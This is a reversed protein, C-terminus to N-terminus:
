QEKQLRIYGNLCAEMGAVHEEDLPQLIHEMMADPELDRKQICLKQLKDEKITPLGFGM